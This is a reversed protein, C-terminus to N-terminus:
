DASPARFSQEPPPIRYEADGFGLIIFGVIQFVVLGFVAFMTDKGFRRSLELMAIIYLVLTVLWGIYPILGFLAWWGPKGSIEYLTWTNYVPVVAAWGPRGAKVFIKWEATLAIVICAVVFAVGLIFISTNRVPALSAFHLFSHLYM